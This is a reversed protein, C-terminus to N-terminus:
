NVFENISQRQSLLKSITNMDRSLLLDQKTKTTTTTTTTKAFLNQVLWHCNILGKAIVKTAAALKTKGTKVRIKL